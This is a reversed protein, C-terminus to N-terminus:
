FEEGIRDRSVIQAVSKQLDQLDESCDECGSEWTYNKHETQKTNSRSAAASGAPLCLEHCNM